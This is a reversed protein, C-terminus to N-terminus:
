SNLFISITLKPILKGHRKEFYIEQGIKVALYDELKLAQLLSQGRKIEIGSPSNGQIFSQKELDLHFYIPEVVVSEKFPNISLGNFNYVNIPNEKHRYFSLPMLGRDFLATFHGIDHAVPICFDTKSVKKEPQLSLFRLLDQNILYIIGKKDKAFFTYSNRYFFLPTLSFDRIIALLKKDTHNLTAELLNPDNVLFSQTRTNYIRRSIKGTINKLLNVSVEDNDDCALVLDGSRDIKLGAVMTTESYAIIISKDNLREITVEGPFTLLYDIIKKFDNQPDGNKKILRYSVM